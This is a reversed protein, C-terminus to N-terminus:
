RINIEKATKITRVIKAKLSTFENLSCCLASHYVDVNWRYSCYRVAQVGCGHVHWALDNETPTAQKIEKMEGKTKSELM